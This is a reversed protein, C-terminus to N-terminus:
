SKAGEIQTYLAIPLVQPYEMQLCFIFGAANECDLSFCVAFSPETGGRGDTVSDISDTEVGFFRAMETIGGIDAPDEFSIRCELKLSGRASMVGNRAYVLAYRTTDGNQNEIDCCLLVGLEHKDLMKYFASLRGDVSNRLPLIGYTCDGDAVSECALAFSDRYATMAGFVYKAFCEFAKGSQINRVFAIKRDKPALDPSDGFLVQAFNKQTYQAGTMEVMKKCLFYRDSRLLLDSRFAADHKNVEDADTEDSLPMSLANMYARRVADETCSLFVDGEAADCLQPYLVNALDSLYALRKETEHSIGLLNTKLNENVIENAGANPAVNELRSNELIFRREAKAQYYRLIIRYYLIM